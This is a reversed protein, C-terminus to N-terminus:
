RLAILNRLEYLRELCSSCPVAIDCFQVHSEETIKDPYSMLGQYPCLCEKWQLVIRVIDEHVQAGLHSISARFM